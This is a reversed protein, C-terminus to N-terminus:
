GRSDPAGGAGEGGNPKRRPMPNVDLFRAALFNNPATHPKVVSVELIQYIISYIYRIM